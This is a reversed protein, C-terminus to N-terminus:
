MWLILITVELTLLYSSNCSLYELFINQTVDLVNVLPSITLYVLATFDQIGTLDTINIAVFIQELDLVTLTDINATLVGGDIVNDLGLNILVQEFQSDLITTTQAKIITSYFCFFSVM